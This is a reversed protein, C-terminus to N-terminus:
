GKGYPRTSIVTPAFLHLAGLARESCALRCQIYVELFHLSVLINLNPHLSCFLIPDIQCHILSSSSKLHIRVALYYSSYWTYHGFIQSCQVFM